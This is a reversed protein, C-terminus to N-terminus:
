RINGYETPDWRLKYDNWSYDLWANVHVIQLIFQGILINLFSKAQNKEDVDILQQLSVKLYVTVPLSHNEVPREL